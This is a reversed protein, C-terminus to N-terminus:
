LSESISIFSPEATHTLRGHGRKLKVPMDPILARNKYANISGFPLREYDETSDPTTFPPNVLILMSLVNLGPLRQIICAVHRRADKEVTQADM